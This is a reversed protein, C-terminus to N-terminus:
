RRSQKRSRAFGQRLNEFRLPQGPGQGLADQDCFLFLAIFCLCTSYTKLWKFWITMIQGQGPRAKVWGQGLRSGAKVWGQGPRSRAQGQGPRSRAQGQGPRSRAQGQGQRSRVQGSDTNKSRAQGQCPRSWNQKKGQGQGTTENINQM